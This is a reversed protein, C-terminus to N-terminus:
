GEAREHLKKLAQLSECLGDICEFPVSFKQEIKPKENDLPLIEYIHVDGNTLLEVSIESVIQHPRICKRKANKFESGRRDLKGHARDIDIAQKPPPINVGPTDAVVVTEKNKDNACFECHQDLPMGHDCQYTTRTTKRKGLKRFCEDCFKYPPTGHECVKTQPGSPMIKTDAYSEADAKTPRVAIIAKSEIPPKVPARRVGTVLTAGAILPAGKRCWFVKALEMHQQCDIQQKQHMFQLAKLCASPSVNIKDSLDGLTLPQTLGNIIKAELSYSTEAHMM